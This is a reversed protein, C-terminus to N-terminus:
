ALYFATLTRHATEPCTETNTLPLVISRETEVDGRTVTLRSLASALDNIKRSEGQGLSTQRWADSYSPPSFELQRKGGGAM